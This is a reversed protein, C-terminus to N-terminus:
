DYPPPAPLVLQLLNLLNEFDDRVGNEDANEFLENLAIEVSPLIPWLGFAALMPNIDQLNFPTDTEPDEDYETNDLLSDALAEFLTEFALAAEMGEEDLEGFHPIIFPEGEDYLGNENRDAYALIDDSQEDDEDRIRDFTREGHRLGLGMDIQSRRLEELGEDGLTLFDPFAPDQLIRLMLDVIISAIELTSYQDFDLDALLLAFSLNFDMNVSTMFRVSGGLAFGLAACAGVESHDWDDGGPEAVLDFALYIPMRILELSLCPTEMAEPVLEVLDDTFQLILGELALEIIGDVIGQTGDPPDGAKEGEQYGSLAMEVYQVILSITDLNMMTDALIMGFLADQDQPDEQRAALFELRALGGAGAQLYDLGQLTRANESPPAEECEEDDDDPIDTDDDGTSDDDDTDDDVFDDDNDDDDDNCTCGVAAVAIVITLFVWAQFITGLKM